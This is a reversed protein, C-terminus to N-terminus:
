FTKLDFEQDITRALELSIKGLRIFKDKLPRLPEHNALDVLANSISLLGNAAIFASTKADFTEDDRDKEEEIRSTLARYIKALILFRYHSIVKVNELIIKEDAEIPVIEFEKLLNELRKSFKDVLNYLPFKQPKPPPQYESDKIKNLDIGLRLADKKLLKMTEGLSEKVQEFACEWSDPDKGQDIFKKRAKQDDKFVRCIETLQCRECWRDCYNFPTRYFDKKSIWPPRIAGSMFSRRLNVREWQLM